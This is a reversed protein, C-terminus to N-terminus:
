NALAEFYKKANECDTKIQRSLAEISEFKKEDRTKTVFEVEIEKGYLEKNFDFIHTEVNKINKGDITPKVGVNTISPHRIDKYTCYTIYVGNPPSVMTEDLNLNSTPFGISKGLRNGVVVEGTISYNRGLLEDAEEMEGKEICERIRTSSVPQGKILFPELVNVGFGLQLGYHLLIEPNGSGADGFRYNFGCCAEKMNIKKVLIEKVFEEATLSKIEETFPVDILIDVGLEEILKEKDKSKFINKIQQVEVNEINKENNKEESILFNKPHTSFSFVASKMKAAKASAVARSILEQHGLHVGDFNGLALVTNEEISIEDISNFIKM